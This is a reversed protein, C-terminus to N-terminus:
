HQSTKVGYAKLVPAAPPGTLFRIFANAAEPEKAAANAGLTFDYYTQHESPLEGVLEVAPNALISVVSTFAFETDGDIVAQTPSGVAKVKPQMEAAIGIRDLVGLFMKGSGGERSYGVSKAGLLAQRFAESSSIDPRPGGKRVALSLGVRGFTARTDAVIKGTQILEEISGPGLVAVDFAEGADIRRKLVAVVAFHVVVKHGTASEFRRALENVPGRVGSSSFVKIEAAHTLGGSPLAIVVAVVAAAIVFSFLKRAM